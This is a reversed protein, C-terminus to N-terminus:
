PAPQLRFVFELSLIVAELVDLMATLDALWLSAANVGLLTLQRSICATLVLATTLEQLKRCSCRANVLLSPHLGAPPPGLRDKSMRTNLPQPTTSTGNVVSGGPGDLDPLM